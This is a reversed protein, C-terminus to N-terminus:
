AGKAQQSHFPTRFYLKKSMKKDVDEATRIKSVLDAILIM